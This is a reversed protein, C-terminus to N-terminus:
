TKEVISIKKLLKGKLMSSIHHISPIVTSENGLSKKYKKYEGTEVNVSPTSSIKMFVTKKTDSYKAIDCVSKEGRQCTIHM